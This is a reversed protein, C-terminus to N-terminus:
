TWKSTYKCNDKVNKKCQWHLPFYQPLQIIKEWNITATTACSNQYPPRNYDPTCKRTVCKGTHLLSYPTSPTFHKPNCKWVLRKWTVQWLPYSLDTESNTEKTFFRFSKWWSVAYNERMKHGITDDEVKMTKNFLSPIM